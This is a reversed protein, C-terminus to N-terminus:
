STGCPTRSLYTAPLHRQAAELAAADKVKLEQLIVVDPDGAPGMLFYSLRAVKDPGGLGNVNLTLLRLTGDNRPM